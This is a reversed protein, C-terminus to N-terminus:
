WKFSLIDMMEIIKRQELWGRETIELLKYQNKKISILDEELSKKKQKKKLFYKFCDSMSM